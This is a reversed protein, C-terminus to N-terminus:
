EDSNNTDRFQKEGSALENIEEENSPEETEECIEPRMKRMMQMKQIIQMM